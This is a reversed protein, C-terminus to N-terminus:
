SGPDILWDGLPSLDVPGEIRLARGFARRREAAAMCEPHLWAGRGPRDARLDPEVSAGSAVVRTLSRRPARERCGLCTRIPEHEVRAVNPERSTLANM